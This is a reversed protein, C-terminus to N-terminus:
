RVRRARIIGDATCTSVGFGIQAVLFVTTTSAVSIRTVPTSNYDNQGTTFPGSSQTFTGLAGAAGSTISIGQLQFNMTTTGAPNVRVVGSVDWDGATLSISTINATTVNTLSVGTATNTVYEGVSGTNANNNTTTGVIGATQSTTLGGNITLNGLDDMSAISASNASNVIQFNGNFARLFKNPTTAGQGSLEIVAGSANATANIQLSTGSTSTISVAGTFSPSTLQAYGTACTFGTGSTWQLNNGNASCSPMVFATPSAASGTVNAVVTNAAQAALATATVNGWAPATSAGTSVIAQGSTSGVPNLLQVPNLTAAQTLSSFLLAFCAFLRVNKM